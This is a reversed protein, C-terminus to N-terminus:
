HCFLVLAWSVPMMFMAMALLTLTSTVEFIWFWSHDWTMGFLSQVIRGWLGCWPGSMSEVGMEKDLHVQWAVLASHVCQEAYLFEESQCVKNFDEATARMEKWTKNLLQICIAFLEEFARDHTFFMPHYDNRGENAEPIFLFWLWMFICFLLYYSYSFDMVTVSLCHHVITSVWLSLSLEISQRGMPLRNPIAVIGLSWWALRQLPRVRKPSTEGSSQKCNNGM